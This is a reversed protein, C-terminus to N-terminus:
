LESNILQKLVDFDKISQKFYKNQEFIIKCM